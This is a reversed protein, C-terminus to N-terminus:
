LKKYAHPDKSLEEMKQNYHTTTLIVAKKSKDAITIILDFINKM